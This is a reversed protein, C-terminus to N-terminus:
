SGGDGGPGGGPVGLYLFGFGEDRFTLGAGALAESWDGQVAPNTEEMGHDASVVFACDDLVGATEIASLVEGIRSDTEVLSAAAMESYPGGRHMATDTLTFNVWMLRPRPYAAGRYHGSWVGVAQEVAMHDVSVSWAYDKHPRVFHPHAYPVDTAATIAPVEGRRFFDFTSYSAGRDAPENVAATFDDPWTRAVAEFLTEVESGMWTGAMAWTAPHNTVIQAGRARDWYANHLIGHHGPYAGTMMTTHNPLTVTPFSSLCGHDLVTGMAALRGMHPLAGADMLDYLVNANAGDLLFFVTHRPAESPDLLDGRVHGDQRALLVRPATEGTVTRGPRPAVGMAAALTPALDVNRVAGDRRGDARFGRGALVLPARAQVVGLSGHEGLHGGQDEWNHAASHVAVVDPANPDDFVQSISEFANPYHNEAASPFPHTREEALPAFAAPDQHGLPDRGSHEVVEYRYAGGDGARRFVLRGDAGVVAYTAPERGRALAMDCIPAIDPSALVDCALDVDPHREM